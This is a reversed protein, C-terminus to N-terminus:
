VNEIVKVMFDYMESYCETCEVLCTEKYNAVLFRCRKCNLIPSFSLAQIKGILAGGIKKLISLHSGEQALMGHKKTCGACLAVEQM